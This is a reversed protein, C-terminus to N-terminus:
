DDIVVECWYWGKGVVVLESWDVHTAATLAGVGVTSACGAVAVALTLRAEHGHRSNQCSTHISVMSFDAIHYGRSSRRRGVNAEVGPHVFSRAPLAVISHVVISRSSSLSPNNTDQSSSLRSFSNSTEGMKYTNREEERGSGAMLTSSAMLTDTSPLATSL